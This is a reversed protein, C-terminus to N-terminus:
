TKELGSKAELPTEDNEGKTSLHSQIPGLRRMLWNPVKAYRDFAEKAEEVKKREESIKEAITKYNDFTEKREDM